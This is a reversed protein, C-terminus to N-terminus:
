RWRELGHLERNLLRGGERNCVQVCSDSLFQGLKLVEYIPFFENLQRTLASDQWPDGCALLKELGEHLWAAGDSCVECESSSSPFFKLNKENAIFTYSLGGHYLVEQSAVFQIRVLTRCLIYGTMYIFFELDIILQVSKIKDVHFSAGSM